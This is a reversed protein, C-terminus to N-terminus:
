RNNYDFEDVPASAPKPAEAVEPAKRDDKFEESLTPVESARNSETKIVTIIDKANQVSRDFIAQKQELTMPDKDSIAPILIAACIGIITIVIMLEILTFGKSLKM